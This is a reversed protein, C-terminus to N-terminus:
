RPSMMKGLDVVGLLTSSFKSMKSKSRVSTSITAILPLFKPNLRAATAAAPAVVAETVAADAKLSTDPLASM